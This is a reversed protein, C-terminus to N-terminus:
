SFKTSSLSMAPYSSQISENQILAKGRPFLVFYSANLPCYKGVSAMEVEIVILYATHFETVGNMAESKMPCAMNTGKQQIEM